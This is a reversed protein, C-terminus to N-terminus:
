DEEEEEAKAAKEKALEVEAAPPAPTVAEEERRPPIVRVVIQEPDDLLTVGPPFQLDAVRVVAEFDKLISLDVLIAEPVELPLCEVAIERVLLDLTGSLTRVAPAEGRLIVPVETTIQETRQVQLLDIHLLEGSVPHRQIERVFALPSDGEGDMELSIPAHHGVQAIVRKVAPTEAQLSRSPGGSGYLNMPLLGQHRLAKVKKGLVGRPQVKLMVVEM